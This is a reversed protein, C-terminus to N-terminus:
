NDENGELLTPEDFHKWKRKLSRVLRGTRIDNWCLTSEHRLRLEFDDFVARGHRSSTSVLLDVLPRINETLHRRVNPHLIKAERLLWEQVERDTMPFEREATEKKEREPWPFGALCLAKLADPIRTQDAAARSLFADCM